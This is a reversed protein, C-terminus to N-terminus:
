YWAYASIVYETYEPLNFCSIEFPKKSGSTLSDVYTTEGYVIEGNNKLTVTVSVTGADKEGTNEIEGTFSVDGYEGIMENTNSIAFSSTPIIADNDASIFDGSSTTIEISAPVSGNCDLLSAFTITDLPAIYSLYNDTTGLITGDESKATVTIIPANLAYNENPNNLSVAYYAFVYGTEDNVISYGSEVLVIDQKEPKVSEETVGTNETTSSESETSESGGCAVMSLSMTAALLAALLKNKM